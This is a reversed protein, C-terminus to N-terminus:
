FGFDGSCDMGYDGDGFELDGYDDCSYHHSDHHNVNTNHIDYHHNINIDAHDHNYYGTGCGFSNNWGWGHGWNNLAAGMLVGATYDGVGSGRDRVLITTNTPQIYTTEPYIAGLHNTSHIM